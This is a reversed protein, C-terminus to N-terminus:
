SKGLNVGIPIPSTAKALRQAVAKAGDNNFGMRNVIAKDEPIRFLRPKPNGPQAHWTITGMEAFGFGLRHWHNVARANKDFGAALGLPNPFKVGFFEQELIPDAFPKASVLGRELLAFAAEHVA